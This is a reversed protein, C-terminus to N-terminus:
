KPDIRHYNPKIHSPMKEVFQIPKIETDMGEQEMIGIFHKLARILLPNDKQAALIEFSSIAPDKKYIDDGNPYIYIATNWRSKPIRNLEKSLSQCLDFYEERTDVDPLTIDM